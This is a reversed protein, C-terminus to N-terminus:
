KGFLGKLKSIPNNNQQNQQSSTKGSTGDMQQKLFAGVNAKISPNTTTGTITLPIGNNAANGSRNGLLGGIMNIASNAVAGVATASNFKAVLQFNLADSSSVTGSGSATGIQPISAYISSFQTGQPSSNVVTSVKEIQTGGKPGATPNIGQIKSGLDFGALQSNDLEVPGAITLANAPGTIALNATLAGGKLQSGSPLHIGAAPLLQEVQDVPLNPAALHLDLVEGQGSYRFGGNVHVAVSGTHIALDSVQGTRTELNDSITYDINVPQSAPTGNRALLLKSAAISGSSTLNTGDSAIKANFDAVMGIGDSPSVVNASVPDFHKIELTAQFPTAAANKQSIPGATGNLKLSGDGPVQLSLDFPFSEDFSFHQVTLNVDSCSFPKGAQPLSSIAASGDKIKLSDVTLVPMATQQQSAPKAASTGMSSFNWSGNQAHILHISPSEVTLNTIQVSHHFLFQGVAVGIRLQRAALFPTSSFTPDDSVALDNAVLSGTILSFSLQGLTVQRGLSSSLEREITPRFTDASVFFPVVLVVVVFIVVLAIAIKGWQKKM